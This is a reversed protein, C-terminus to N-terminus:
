GSGRALSAKAAKEVLERLEPDDIAAAWAAAQERQALTVPPLGQPTAPAPVSGPEPLPGPVFKLAPKGPLRPSIESARSTLEFGWIADQTHVILTGDRQFRASWANRAIEPGVAAEWAELIDGM